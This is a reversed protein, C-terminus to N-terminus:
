DQVRIAAGNSYVNASQMVAGNAPQALAFRVAASGSDIITVLNATGDIKVITVVQTSLTNGLGLPFTVTAPGLSADVELVQDSSLVTTNGTVTRLNTNATSGGSGIVPDATWIENGLYDTLVVKYAQAQMFINPFM